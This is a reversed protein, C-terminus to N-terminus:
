RGEPVPTPSYSPIDELDYYPRARLEIDLDYQEGFRSHPRKERGALPGGGEGDESSEAGPRYPFIGVVGMVERVRENVRDLMAQREDRELTAFLGRAEGEEWQIAPRPELPEGRAKKRIDERLAAIEAEAKKLDYRASADPEGTELRKRIQLEAMALDEDRRFRTAAIAAAARVTSSRDVMKQLVTTVARPDAISALAVVACAAVEASRPSNVVSLLSQLSDADGRRSLLYAALRREAGRSKVSTLVGEILRTTEPSRDVALALLAAERVEIDGDNRFRDVFLPHFSDRRSIALALVASLRAGATTDGLAERFVPSPVEDGSPSVEAVRRPFFGLALLAAARVDPMAQRQSLIGMLMDGAEVERVRALRGLALGVAIRRQENERSGLAGRLADLTRDESSRVRGLMLAALAPPWESRAEALVIERMEPVVRDDHLKGHTPDCLRGLVLICNSRVNSADRRMEELLRPVSWYGIEYLGDRGRERDSPAPNGFLSIFNRIDAATERDPKRFFVPDDRVDEARAFPLGAATVLLAVAATRRLSRADTRAPSM